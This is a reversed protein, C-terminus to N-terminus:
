RSARLARGLAEGRARRARDGPTELPEARGYGGSLCPGVLTILVHSYEGPAITVCGGGGGLVEVMRAGRAAQAALPDAAPSAAATPALYDDGSYAGAGDLVPWLHQSLDM